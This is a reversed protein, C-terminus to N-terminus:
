EDKVQMEEVVKLATTVSRVEGSLLHVGKVVGVEECPACIEVGALLSDHDKTRPMVLTDPLSSDNGHSRTPASGPLALGRPLMPQDQEEASAGSCIEQEPCERGLCSELEGELVVPRHALTQGRKHSNLDKLVSPVHGTQWERESTKAKLTCLADPVCSVPGTPAIGESHHLLTKSTDHDTRQLTAACPDM